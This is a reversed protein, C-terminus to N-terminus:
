ATLIQDTQRPYLCVAMRLTVLLAPRAVRALLDPLVPSGPRSHLACLLDTLAASARLRQKPWVAHYNVVVWHVLESMEEVMRGEMVQVHGVLDAFAGMLATQMEMARGLDALAVAMAQDEGALWILPALKRWLSKVQTEGAGAPAFRMVPGAFKGLARVALHM